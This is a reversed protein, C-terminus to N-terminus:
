EIPTLMPLARGAGGGIPMPQSGGPREGAGAAASDLSAAPSALTVRGGSGLLSEELTSSGVFASSSASDPRLALPGSPSERGSDDEHGASGFELPRPPPLPPLLPACLTGGESDGSRSRALVALAAAHEQREKRWLECAKRAMQPSLTLPAKPLPSAEATANSSLLPAAQQAHQAYMASRCRAKYTIFSLLLAMSATTLWGPLVKNLTSGVLAGLITSPEMVLVLDQLLAAAHISAIHPLPPHISPLVLPTCSSQAAAAAATYCCCCGRPRQGGHRVWDILPRAPNAPHQRWINFALNSLTGGVITINSLAVAGATSFGASPPM